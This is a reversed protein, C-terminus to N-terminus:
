PIRIEPALDSEDLWSAIVLAIEDSNSEMMLMHGNGVIQRDGLYLFDSKAGNQNLWDAITKDIEVPHDTDNTGTLVLVRKGAFKSYDCVKLQSGGINLRQYILRPPVPILSAAYHAAFKRPFFTSSGILKKEAFEPSPAFPATRSIRLVPGGHFIQTEVADATDLLIVAEPQLNGPRSPAVAVLKSIREGCRELLKWGYAGSMSHTMVIAARDLSHLVRGLGAVVQEGDLADSPVHGSRGCGPWDPVVVQHGRSAFFQAWGPRGDATRLYCAGTHGGGHILLMPPKTTGSVLELSDFYTVPDATLGSRYKLAAGSVSSIEQSV